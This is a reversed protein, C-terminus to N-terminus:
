RGVSTETWGLVVRLDRRVARSAKNGLLEQLRTETQLQLARVQNKREEASLSTTKAVLEATTRADRTVQWAQEIRELPVGQEEAPRRTNIYFMDTVREFEKAREDGFLKRVEETAVTRNLLDAYYGTDGAKQARAAYLSKFEEPTCNFYELEMRTQQGTQSNRLRFEALEEPSLVNALLRTKEAFIKKEDAHPMGAKSELDADALAKLAAERKEPPLFLLQQESGHLQLYLTDTLGQESPKFGLLNQFVARKEHDLAILQKQQDPSPQDNSYKQWYATARPKWITQARAAFLQNVDAVIIDRIIQEPCGVARLNAVYQRYDTSEIESWHFSPANTALSGAAANTAAAFLALNSTNGMQNSGSAAPQLPLSPRRHFLQAVLFLNLGVSAVVLLMTTVSSTRPKIDTTASM